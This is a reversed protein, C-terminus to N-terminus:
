GLLRSEVRQLDDLAGFLVLVDDSELRTNRPPDLHRRGQRLLATALVRDRALDLEELTRGIASAGPSLRVSSLRDARLDDGHGALAENGHFFERLLHYRGAQVERVRRVIRPLPVGLLLLAHVVIMMGAELTEPV